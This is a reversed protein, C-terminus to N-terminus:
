SVAFHFFVLNSTNDLLRQGNAILRWDAKVYYINKTLGFYFCSLYAGFVWLNSHWPKAMIVMKLWSFFFSIFSISTLSLIVHHMCCRSHIPFFILFKSSARLISRGYARISLCRYGALRWVSDRHHARARKSAWELDREVFSSCISFCFLFDVVFCICECVCM